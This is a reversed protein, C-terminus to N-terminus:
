IRRVAHVLREIREGGDRFPLELVQLSVHEFGIVAAQGEVVGILAGDRLKRFHERLQSEYLEPAYESFRMGRRPVNTMQAFTEGIIRYVPDPEDGEFSSMVIDPHWGMFDTFDMQSWCPAPADGRRENWLAILPAFDPVLELAREATVLHTTKQAQRPSQLLDEISQAADYGFSRIM